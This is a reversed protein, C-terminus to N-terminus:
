LHRHKPRRKHFTPQGQRRVGLLICRHPDSPFPMITILLLLILVVVIITVVIYLITNVLNSSTSVAIGFGYGPVRQLTVHHFEWAIREGGQANSNNKHHPNNKQTLNIKINIIM